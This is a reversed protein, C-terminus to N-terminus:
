RGAVLGLSRWWPTEYALLLKYASQILVSPINEKLWPDDFYSSEILELSRRAREQEEWALFPAVWEAGAIESWHTTLGHLHLAAARAQLADLETM